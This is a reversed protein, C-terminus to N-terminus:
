ASLNDSFIKKIADADASIVLSVYKGNTEVKANEINAKQKPDYNQIVNYIADWNNQLKEQIDKVDDDTKAKIYIIQDQKVGDTCIGGAFDDMQDSTIGLVRELRKESFDSMEEPLTVEKKVIAYITKLESEEEGESADAASADASSAETSADEASADDATSEEVSAAASSQTDESKSETGSNNGCACLSIIMAGAILGLFLKKM